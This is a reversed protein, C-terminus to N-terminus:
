PTEDQTKMSRELTEQVLAETVEPVVEWVIREALEPVTEWATQQAATLNNAPGLEQWLREVTERAVKASIERAVAAAIDRVEQRWDQGAAPATQLTKDARPPEEVEVVLDWESDSVVQGGSGRLSLIM